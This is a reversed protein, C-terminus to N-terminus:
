EENRLEDLCICMATVISLDVNPAVTVAYSQQGGILERANFYKRDIVAATHGDKTSIEARSDFFNGEMVLEEEAGTSSTFSCIAKSGIFQIKKRLEFIKNGAPDQGYFTKHLTFHEKRIDFLTNGNTDCLHKRGSLTLSEGDIKFATLKSGDFKVSFSDGSLSFVHEKLVLTESNQAILSPFIGILRPVPALHM